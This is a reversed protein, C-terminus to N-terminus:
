VTKFTSNYVENEYIRKMLPYFNSEFNMLKNDSISM